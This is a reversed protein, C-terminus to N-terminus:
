LSLMGEAFPILSLLVDHVLFVRQVHKVVVQDLLPVFFCLIQDFLHNVIVRLLPRIGHLKQLVDVEPRIILLKLEDLIETVAKLEVVLGIM